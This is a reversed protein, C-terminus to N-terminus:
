NERNRCCGRHDIIAPSGGCPKCRNHHNVYVQYSCDSDLYQTRADCQSAANRWADEAASYCTLMNVSCTASGVIVAVGVGIAIGKSVPEVWYAAEGVECPFTGPPNGDYEDLLHCAEGSLFLNELRPDTYSPLSSAVNAIQSPHHGAAAMEDSLVQIIARSELSLATATQAFNTFAELIQADELPLDCGQPCASYATWVRLVEDSPYGSTAPLNTITDDGGSQDACATAASMALALALCQLKKSPITAIM